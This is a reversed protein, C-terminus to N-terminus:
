RAQNEHSLCRERRDRCGSSAPSGSPRPNEVLPQLFEQLASVEPWSGTTRPLRALELAVTLALDVYRTGQVLGRLAELHQRAQTFRGDLAELRAQTLHVKCDTRVQRPSLVALPDAGAPWLNLLM